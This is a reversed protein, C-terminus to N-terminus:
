YKEAAKIIDEPQESSFRPLFKTETKPEWYVTRTKKKSSNGRTETSELDEVKWGNDILIKRAQVVNM